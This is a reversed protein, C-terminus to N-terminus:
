GENGMSLCFGYLVAEISNPLCFLIQVQLKYNLPSDSQWQAIHKYAYLERVAQNM